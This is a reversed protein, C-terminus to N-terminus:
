KVNKEGKIVECTCALTYQKRLWVLYNKNPTPLTKQRMM